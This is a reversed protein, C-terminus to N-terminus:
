SQMTGTLLPHPLASKGTQQTAPSGAQPGDANGANEPRAVGQRNSIPSGASQSTQPVNGAAGKAEAGASKGPVTGWLWGLLTFAPWAIAPVYLGFEIFSQLSWGAVGLWALFALDSKKIFPNRYLLFVSGLVFASFTLVGIVGSDSAQQLYDNHTLRAMEADPPKIRQYATTFSGPGSGLVPNALFTKGAARWYEFRAGVSTAGQEFYKQFRLGFGVLAVVALGIAVGTKLRRPAPVRALALLGLVVAVLWGGKSGTWYLCGAGGIGFGVPVALRIAPPLDRGGLWAAGLVVPLLLIVVQALANPYVLTSFIRDSQIKKLFEPSMPKGAMQELVYKRTEELGGFHQQWGQVLVWALCGGIFLWFLRLRELKALAFLGLYFCGVCASFHLLTTRTLDPRISQPACLLQWGFWVAPLAIMWTPAATQFKAARLGLVLVGALLVIGWALPWSQFIIELRNQPAEVAADLVVPNGFKLLSLGLVLGFLAVFVVQWVSERPSSPPTPTPM